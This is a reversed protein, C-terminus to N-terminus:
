TQNCFPNLLIKLQSMSLRMNKLKTKEISYNTNVANLSVIELTPLLWEVLQAVIVAWFACFQIHVDSM